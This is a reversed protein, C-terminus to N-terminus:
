LEDEVQLESEATHIRFKISFYRHLLEQYRVLNTPSEFGKTKNEMKDVIDPNFGRKMAINWFIDEVEEATEDTFDVHRRILAKLYKIAERDNEPIESVYTGTPIYLQLGGDGKLPVRTPVGRTGRMVELYSLVKPLQCLLGKEEDRWHVHSVIYLPPDHPDEDITIVTIRYPEDRMVLNLLGLVSRRLVKGPIMITATM